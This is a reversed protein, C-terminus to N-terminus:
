TENSVLVRHSLRFQFAQYKTFNSITYIYKFHGLWDGLTMSLNLDTKWKEFCGKPLESLEIILKSYVM